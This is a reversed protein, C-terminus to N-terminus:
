PKLERRLETIGNRIEFISSRLHVLALRHDPDTEMAILEQCASVAENLWNLCRKLVALVYGTEPEYDAGWGNLAGALKGTVQLVNGLLAQAPSDPSSDRDVLDMARLALDHAKTQLPHDAEEPPDDADFWSEAAADDEEEELSGMLDEEEHRDALAELLSDWGMVFAEKRESEPDDMFKELVEQYADSVRDSEKLRQEWQFENLCTHSKTDEESENRGIVQRIFERMAHLNAMGQAIEADEDMRWVPEGLELQFEDAELVVRGNSASFWELYLFNRWEFHSDNAPDLDVVDLRPVRFRRSATMDGVTGTQLNSLAEIDQSPQPKPKPNVFTLRTGALDRLCDGELDLTIPEDQGALWIRGTTRGEVTNDIEGRVAAEDIRWAMARLMRSRPHM